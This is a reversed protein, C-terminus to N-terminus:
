NMRMTGEGVVDFGGDLSNKKDQQEKRMRMIREHESENKRVTEGTNSRGHSSFMTRRKRAGFIQEFKDAEKFLIYDLEKDHYREDHALDEMLKFAEDAQAPTPKYESEIFPLVESWENKLLSVSEQYANAQAREAESTEYSQLKQDLDNIKKGFDEEMQTRFVDYLKKVATPDQIGQSKAYELFPQPPPQNAKLVKNEELFQDREKIIQAQEAREKALAAREARLKSREENFQQFPTKTRAQPEDDEETDDSETSEEEIETEEEESPEVEKSETETVPAEEIEVQAKPPLGMGERAAAVRADQDKQLQRAEEISVGGNIRDEM